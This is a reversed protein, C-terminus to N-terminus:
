SNSRCMTALGPPIRLKGGYVIGLSKTKWLYGAVVLGPDYHCQRPDPVASALKSAEMAVDPRTMTSPWVIKGLLKLLKIRDIPPSTKNELIKDFASRDERSTGHPTDQMTILGKLQEAMQEIYREQHIKIQRTERHREIQVGTFKLVPSISSSLSCRIISTFQAKWSKYAELMAPPYGVLIDDAFIGMRFGIKEHYYLNVEQMWSKCGLKLVAGRCLRHWLFAGTRMIAILYDWADPGNQFHNQVMHSRHDVDLEHVSVM